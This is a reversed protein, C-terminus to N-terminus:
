LMVLKAFNQRNKLHNLKKKSEQLISLNLHVNLSIKPKKSGITSKIPPLVHQSKECLIIANFLLGEQCMWWETMSYPSVIDLYASSSSYAEFRNESLWASHTHAPCFRLLRIARRTSCSFASITSYSSTRIARGPRRALSVVSALLM